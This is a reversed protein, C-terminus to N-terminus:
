DFTTPPQEAASAPAEPAPRFAGALRSEAAFLGTTLDRFEAWTM